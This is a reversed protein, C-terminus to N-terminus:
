VTRLSQEVAQAVVEADLVSRLAALAENTRKAIKTRKTSDDEQYYDVTWRETRFKGGFGLSGCFRYETCPHGREGSVSLVFDERWYESANCERVLVDYILHAIAEPIADFASM